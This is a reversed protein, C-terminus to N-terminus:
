DKKYHGVSQFFINKQSEWADQAQHGEKHSEDERLTWPVVPHLDKVAIHAWHRQEYNSKKLDNCDTVDIAYSLVSARWRLYSKLLLSADNTHTKIIERTQECSWHHGQTCSRNWAWCRRSPRSTPSWDQSAGSPTQQMHSGGLVSVDWRDWM